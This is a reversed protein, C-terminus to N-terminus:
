IIDELDYNKFYDKVGMRKAEIRFLRPSKGFKRKFCKSLYKPDNFGVKFASESITYGFKAIYVAAKKLRFDRVFDVLNMGTLIQCKRYLTSHSMHLSDALDGIKFDADEIRSNIQYVLNELFVEDQTKQNEISPKSIIENKFKALTHQKSSIINKIKLQLEKTNFPKHIYEIAGSKLGQIKSDSSNKATILIVPIHNTLANKQLLNCMKVGDLKPMMIDSLILDPINSKAYNLGEEGNDALIINYHDMLLDKLFMQLEFNDEVVLITKKNKDTPIEIDNSPHTDMDVENLQEEPQETMIKESDHYNREAIPLTITFCTGEENSSTVEIKGRHLDVLEKTLTLGIGTGRLKKGLDTQYFLTFINELDISPIGPGSDTISIKVMDKSKIPIINLQINGNKPTFKFANSLLNFIIHEIKDKDYWAERLNQPCNSTFDIKKIRAEEKFSLSINNIEECLNNKKVLLKLRGLDKNRVTTLEFAIKSLRKVNNSIIKLRQHLLLNENQKSKLLMEEIPGGILTLPTQIEHSMKTYFDLKLDHMENEKKHDLKERILDNRLIIWQKAWVVLAILLSFYLIYAVWHHWWPKRIKILISKSPINWEGIKDGAMVEFTYEGSPINTYTAIRNQYSLVWSDDFGKLKYKYHYNPNLINDIAIFKFSFSSQDYKLNIQKEDKLKKDLQKPLISDAPQNLIEISNIYLKAKSKNKKIELPNFYNIGENSGFYLIGKKDRFSSRSLFFNSQLGDTEYYNKILGDKPNFYVIGYTSSLWINNQIDSNVAVIKKDKFSEKIKYLQPIKELTNFKFLNGDSNVIWIIDNVFTMDRVDNSHISKEKLQFFNYKKFKSNKFNNLDEKFEFLGGPFYGIWISGNNDEVISESIYGILGNKNNEFSALIKKDSTYVNTFISTCVWIRNKSDNFVLRVDNTNRNGLNIMPIKEFRQTKHDLIWLGNKYTGIWINGVLDEVISQVYFGQKKFYQIVKSGGNINTKVRSLGKGDTGLWIDNNKAIYISLIRQPTNDDSGSHYHLIESRNLLINVDGYNSLVWLNNNLDEHIDVISNSSLSYPNTPISKYSKIQFIDPNIQYLGSGDTGAWIMGKNDCMLTLFLEKTLNFSSNKYLENQFFVHSLTNYAYLGLTETGIWLNENHDLALVINGPYNMFDGELKKLYNNKLNFTFISGRSTGIYLKNSKSLAMSHVSRYNGDNAPLTFIKKFAKNSYLYIDGYNSAFFMKDGVGFIQDIKVESEITFLTFKGNAAYKSVKGTKSLLWINGKSDKAMDKLYDQTKSKFIRKLPINQFEYGDYKLIGQDYSFWISGQEDQLSQSAIYQKGNFTLSVHRFNTQDQGYLIISVFFTFCIFIRNKLNLM